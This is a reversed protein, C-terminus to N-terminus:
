FKGLDRTVAGLIQDTTQIMKQQSEFQRYFVIMDAMERIADVNSTEVYGQLVVQM